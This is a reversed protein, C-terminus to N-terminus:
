FPMGHQVAAILGLIFNDTKPHFFHLILKKRSLHDTENGPYHFPATKGHLTCLLNRAAPGNPIKGTLIQKGGAAHLIPASDSLRRWRFAYHWADASAPPLVGPLPMRGGRGDSAPGGIDCFGAVCFRRLLFAGALEPLPKRTM